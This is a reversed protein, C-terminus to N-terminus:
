TSSLFIRDRDAGRFKPDESKDFCGARSEVRPTPLIPTHLCNIQSARDTVSTRTTALTRNEFIQEVAMVLTRGASELVTSLIPKEDTANGDTVGQNAKKPDYRQEHNPNKAPDIQLPQETQTERPPDNQREETIRITLAKPQTEIENEGVVFHRIRRSTGPIGFGNISGFGAM